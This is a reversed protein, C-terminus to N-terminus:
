QFYSGFIMAAVISIGMSWELLWRMNKKRGGIFNGILMAGSGALVAAVSGYGTSESIFSKSVEGIGMIMFVTLPVVSGLLLFFLPNTKKIKEQASDLSKTAVLAFIIWGSGGVAMVWLATNFLVTDFQMTGATGGSGVSAAISEFAASGILGIRALTQPAGVLGILVIAVTIVAIAPGVTSVSGIKLCRKIESSTLVQTEAVYKKAIRYFLWCQWFVIAVGAFALCWVVPANAVELVEVM